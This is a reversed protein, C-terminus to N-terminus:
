HKKKQGLGRQNLSFFVSGVYIFIVDPNKKIVSMKIILLMFSSLHLNGGFISNMAQISPCMGAHGMNTFSTSILQPFVSAAAFAQRALLHATSNFSRDIKYVTYDVISLYLKSLKPSSVRSPHYPTIM